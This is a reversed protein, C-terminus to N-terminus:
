IVQTPKLWSFTDINRLVTYVITLLLMSLLFKDFWKFIKNYRVYEVAQIICTVSIVPIMIFAGPNWRFAQYLEFHMLSKIMRTGGCGACYLGTKDLIACRYEGNNVLVSIYYLGYVLIVLGFIVLVRKIKKGM